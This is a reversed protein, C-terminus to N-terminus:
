GPFGLMSAYRVWAWVVVAVLTAVLMGTGCIAAADVSDEKRLRYEDQEQEWSTM